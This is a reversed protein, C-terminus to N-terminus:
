FFHFFIHFLYQAIYKRMLQPQYILFPHFSNWVDQKALMVLTPVHKLVMPAILQANQGLKILVLFIASSAFDVLKRATLNLFTTALNLPLNLPSRKLFLFPKPLLPLPMILLMPVDPKVQRAFVLNLPSRKLFLFPKPLLPLPMNLLMPVDPKVQRAFVPVLTSELLAYHLVNPVDPVEQSM